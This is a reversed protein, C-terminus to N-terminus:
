HTMVTALEAPKHIIFDPKQAALVECSNFGWCVAIVKIGIKRAAEVDRTEDGVYIATAPAIHKQRLIQQIIRGKGFLTLGSDVFDFLERMDQAELFAVVNQRSNSTVIGLHHGQHKLELLADKIGPIPKLRAIEQNLESRLRRLLFPLKFFSVKSRRLIERSSLNKLANVNELPTSPYGFEDALRNSISFVADFSDAITGDFDFIIVRATQEPILLPLSQNLVPM